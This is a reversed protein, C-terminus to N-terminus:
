KEAIAVVTPDNLKKGKTVPSYCEVVIGEKQCYTIVEDRDLFPHLEIQNVSLCNLIKRKSHTCTGAPIHGPCAEKLGELHHVNFNSM